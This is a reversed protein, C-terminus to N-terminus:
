KLYKLINNCMSEFTFFNPYINHINELMQNYTFDSISKLIYDINSIDSEEILVCISEWDIYEKFPIHPKNTYIYVPVSGLQMAEYLRFSTTGYGRPCLTFKSRSTIDFFESLNGQSINNGWFKTKIFYESKDKLVNIMKSRVRHGIQLPTVANFNNRKRISGMFSGFIDKQKNNVNPIPSSILPIPITNPYNGGASFNIVKFPFNVNPADDHQSVTFYKKNRDLRNIDEQLSDFLDQSKNLIYTWKIPLFNWGTSDILVKNNFYFKIFYNELDDGKHYIPYPHNILSDDYYRKDIM